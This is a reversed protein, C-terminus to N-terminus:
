KNLLSGFYLIKAEAFKGQILNGIEENSTRSVVVFQINGGVLPLNDLRFLDRDYLRGTAMGLYNDVLYDFRSIDLGGYVILADLMRGCGLIMKLSSDDLYSILEHILSPLKTRSENLTLTYESILNRNKSYNNTTIPISPKDVKRVLLRICAADIWESIIEFGQNFLLTQITDPDFYVRHKDYFFDDLTLVDLIGIL